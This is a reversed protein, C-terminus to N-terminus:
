KFNHDLLNKKQCKQIENNNHILKANNCSKETNIILPNYELHQCHAM